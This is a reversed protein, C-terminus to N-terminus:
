FFSLPSILESIPDSVNAKLQKLKQELIRPLDTERPILAYYNREIVSEGAHGMFAATDERTCKAMKALNAFTVRTSQHLDIRLFTEDATEDYCADLAKRALKTLNRETRRGPIQSFCARFAQSYEKLPECLPVIRPRYANKARVVRLTDDTLHDARLDAMEAIGLGALGGFMFAAVCEHRGIMRSVRVATALQDPMLYYESQCISPNRRLKREFLNKWNDPYNLFVWTSAKRLVNLYHSVTNRKWGMGDEMWSVYNFIHLPKLNWWPQATCINNERCFRLFGSNMARNQHYKWEPNKILEIGNHLAELITPTTLPQNTTLATM